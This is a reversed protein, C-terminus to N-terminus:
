KCRFVIWVTVGLCWCLCLVVASVCTYIMRWWRGKEKEVGCWSVLNQLEKRNKRWDAWADLLEDICKMTTGGLVFGRQSPNLIPYQQLISGLRHALLKNFLKGFCSQLSIPRINSMTREKQADKVFPLIVSTKWSSPFTSSSLCASFLQIIHDRILESDTIAIKWVGPSIEDQGPASVLPTAAALQILEDHTPPIMLGDHWESQIGPKDFLM